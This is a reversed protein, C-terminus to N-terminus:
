KREKQKEGRGQGAGCFMKLAFCFLGSNMPAETKIVNVSGRPPGFADDVTGCVPFLFNEELGNGEGVPSSSTTNSGSELVIKSARIDL